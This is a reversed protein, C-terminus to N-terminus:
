VAPRLNSGQRPRWFSVDRVYSGSVGPIASDWERQRAIAGILRANNAGTVRNSIALVTTTRAGVRLPVREALATAFMVRVNPLAPVPAPAPVVFLEVPVRPEAGVILAPQDDLVTLNKRRHRHRLLQHM